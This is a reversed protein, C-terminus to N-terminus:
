RRLQQRPMRCLHKYRMTSLRRCFDRTQDGFYVFDVFRMNVSFTEKIHVWTLIDVRNTDPRLRYETTVYAAPPLFTNPLVGQLILAGQANGETRIVAMEGDRGDRVIGIKEM